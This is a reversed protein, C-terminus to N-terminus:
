EKIFREARLIRLNPFRLQAGAFDRTNRTVLADAAGAIALELVHNNTEDPLIPRIYAIAVASRIFADGPSVPNM